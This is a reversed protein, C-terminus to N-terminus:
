ALALFSDYTPMATYFRTLKDNGELITEVSFEPREKLQKELESIKAEVTFWEIETQCEILICFVYFMFSIVKGVEVPVSNVSAQQVTCSSKFKLFVRTHLQM